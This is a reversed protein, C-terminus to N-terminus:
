LYTSLYISLKYFTWTSLICCKQPTFHTVQYNGFHSKSSKTIPRIGKQNVGAGARSPAHRPRRGQERQGGWGGVGAGQGQLAGEGERDGWCRQNWGKDQGSQNTTTQGDRGLGGGWRFGHFAGWLCM